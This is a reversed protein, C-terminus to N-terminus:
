VQVFDALHHPLLRGSHFASAILVGTVGLNRLQELDHLSSVGGGVYWCAEAAGPRAAELLEITWHIQGTGVAALDLALLHRFGLRWAWAAIQAPSQPPGSRVSTLWRGARADLSFMATLEQPWRSAREPEPEVADMEQWTELGVVPYIPLRNVVEMLEERHRFGADLWISAKGESWRGLSELASWNPRRRMIADLDAVYFERLGYAESLARAVEVPSTANTWRSTLPRYQQRQGAVAHVVQGDLIDLVALIRM